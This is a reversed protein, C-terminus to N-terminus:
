ISSYRPIFRRYYGVLGLFARVHKKTLPEPWDQVAKVKAPGPQIKGVGIVHGLYHAKDRGFCCNNVKVMFGAQELQSFLEHLHQLHEEWGDHM